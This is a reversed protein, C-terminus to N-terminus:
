CHRSHSAPAVLCYMTLKGEASVSSVMVCPGAHLARPQLPGLIDLHHCAFAGRPELFCGHRVCRGSPFFETLIAPRPTLLVGFYRVIYSAGGRSCKELLQYERRFSDLVKPPPFSQQYRFEKVAIDVPFSSADIDASDANTLRGHLVSSHVGEGIQNLIVVQSASFRTVAPDGAIEKLIRESNAKDLEQSDRLRQVGDSQRDQVDEPAITARLQKRKAALAEAFNTPLFSPRGPPQHERQQEPTSSAGGSSPGTSSSVQRAEVKVRVKIKGAEFPGLASGSGLRRWVTLFQAVEYSDTTLTFRVEETEGIYQLESETGTKGHKCAGSVTVKVSFSPVGEQQLQEGDATSHPCIELELSSESARWLSHNQAHQTASCSHIRGRDLQTSSIAITATPLFAHHTARSCCPNVLDLGHSIQVTLLYACFIQRTDSRKEDLKTPATSDSARTSPPLVHPDQSPLCIPHVVNSKHRRASSVGHKPFRERRTGGLPSATTARTRSKFIGANM